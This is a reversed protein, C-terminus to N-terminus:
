GSNKAKLKKVITVLIKVLEECEQLVFKLKEESILSADRIIELWYRTEKAEKLCFTLKYLFDKPSVAEQAETLNSGISTASRVIQDSITFSAPHKPLLSVVQIVSVAFRKTRLLLSTSYSDIQRM